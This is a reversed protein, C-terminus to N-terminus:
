KNKDKEHKYAAIALEAVDAVSVGTNAAQIKLWKVLSPQLATTFKVRGIAAEKPPRGYSKFQPTAQQGTLQEVKKNAVDATPLDSKSEFVSPDVNPTQPLDLRSINQKKM